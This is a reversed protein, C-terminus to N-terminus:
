RGSRPSASAPSPASGAGASPATLPDASDGAAHRSPSAPWVLAQEGDISLEWAAGTPGYTVRITQGLVTNRGIQYLECPVCLLDIAGFTAVLMMAYGEGYGCCAWPEAIKRRTHYEEFFVGDAVGSTVPQGLAAHFEERTNLSALDTGSQAILGACGSTFLLSPVLLLPLPRM